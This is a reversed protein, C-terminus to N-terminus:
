AAEIGDCGAAKAACEGCVRRGGVVYRETPLEGLCEGCLVGGDLELKPLAAHVLRLFDEWDFTVPVKTLNPTEAALWLRLFDSARMTCEISRAGKVHTVAVPFEEEPADAIAQQLKGIPDSNERSADQCEIWLMPMGTVDCTAAGNGQDSRRISEAHEPFEDRLRAAIAREFVKGKRRSKMGM